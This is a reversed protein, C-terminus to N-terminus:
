SNTIAEVYLSEVPSSCFAALCLCQNHVNGLKALAKKTASGYVICGYDLNLIVLFRFSKFLTTRDAGWEARPLVKWFTSPFGTIRANICSANDLM